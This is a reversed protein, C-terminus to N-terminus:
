HLFSVSQATGLQYHATRGWIPRIADTALFEGSCPPTGATWYFFVMRRVIKACRSEGVRRGFVAAKIACCSLFSKDGISAHRSFVKTVPERGHLFGLCRLFAASRSFDAAAGATIVVSISSLWAM